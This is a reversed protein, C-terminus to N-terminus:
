DKQRKEKELRKSAKKCKNAREYADRAYKYNEGGEGNKAKAWYKNGKKEYFNATSKARKIKSDINEPM